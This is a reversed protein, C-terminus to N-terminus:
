RVASANEAAVPASEVLSMKNDSSIVASAADLIPSSAPLLTISKDAKTKHKKEIASNLNKVAKSL